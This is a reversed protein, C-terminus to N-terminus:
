RGGGYEGGIGTELCNGSGVPSLGINGKDDTRKELIFSM